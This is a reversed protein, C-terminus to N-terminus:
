PTYPFRVIVVGSGGAGGNFNSTSVGAMYGNGGGGGGGTGNTGPNGTRGGGHTANGGASMGGANTYNKGAGGGGAYDVSTGSITNTVGEGGDTSQFNETADQGQAGAGGGGAISMNGGVNAANGGRNGQGSQGAGGTEAGTGGGGSGGDKGRTSINVKAGGGGGRTRIGATSSGYTSQGGFISDKGNSGSATGDVINHLGGVGGSGVKVPYSDLSLNFNTYYILGGAGGGGGGSTAWTGGTGNPCGAGGGGGGAVVLLQAAISPASAFALTYSAQGDLVNGGYTAADEYTFTHIEDYGSGNSVFSVIGGTAKGGSVVVTYTLNHATADNPQVSLTVTSGTSIGTVAAGSSQPEFAAASNKKVYLTSLTTDAITPTFSPNSVSSPVVLTYSTTSASFAPFLLMDAGANLATLGNISRRVILTYTVWEAGSAQPRAQINIIQSAGAALSGTEPVRFTGSQENYAGGNRSIYVKGGTPPAPTVRVHTTDSSVDATYYYITALSAVPSLPIVTATDNKTVSLETLTNATNAAHTATIRYEAEIGDTTRV